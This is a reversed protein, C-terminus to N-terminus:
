NIQIELLENQLCATFAESVEFNEDVTIAADFAEGLSRGTGQLAQMLKVEAACLSRAQVAGQLRWLMIFDETSSKTVAVDNNNTKLSIWEFFAGESVSLLLVSPNLKVNLETLETGQEMLQTVYEITLTETSDASMLSMLWAYDLHAIDVLNTYLSLTSLQNVTVEFIHQNEIESDKILGAVFDPFSLGYGVLTGQEPPSRDVYLRAMKRFNESGVKKECMPFNAILADVCGKYFGNRYVALRKIHSPNECFHEMAGPDGTRLYRTFADIYQNTSM